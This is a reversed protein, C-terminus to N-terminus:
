LGARVQTQNVVEKVGKVKKVVKEVKKRMKESEVLGAVTVVGEKVTVQLQRAGLDRDTILQRNVRDYLLDDSVKEDEAAAAVAFALSPLVALAARRSYRYFRV